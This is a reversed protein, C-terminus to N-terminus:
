SYKLFPILSIYKDNAEELYMYYRYESYNWYKYIYKYYINNFANRCLYIVKGLKTMKKARAKEKQIESLLTFCEKELKYKNELEEASM